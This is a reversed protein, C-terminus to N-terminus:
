EDVGFGTLHDVEIAMRLYRLLEERSSYKPLDLRNFCTHARPLLAPSDGPSREIPQLTFKALQGRNSELVRFGESPVRSTGTCFQLLRGREEDNFTNGVVDWFWQIIPDDECYGGSYQTNKKWDDVDVRNQGNLLLDLERDNFMRLLAVPIVSWFGQQLARLQAKVSTVMKHKAILYIYEEKNADTLREKEGGEKLPIVKTEGFFDETVSFATDLVGDVPHSRIWQLSRYLQSDFFALDQFGGGHQLLQKLLPRCFPAGIMQKDFLAKGLILGVFRFFELHNENVGSNSNIRYAIEDVDCIQFLGANPDLIKQSILTFFERTPGGADAGCEGQFQFKFEKHFDVPTLYRLRDFAMQLLRDRRVDVVIWAHAFHVRMSSLQAYFWDKKVSFPFNALAVFQDRNANWFKKYARRAAAEDSGTREGRTLEVLSDLLLDPNMPQSNASLQRRAAARRAPSPLDEASNARAAPTSPSPESPKSEARADRWMQLAGSRTEQARGASAAAGSLLGEEGAPERPEMPERPEIPEGPEADAREPGLSMNGAGSAPAVAARSGLVGGARGSPPSISWGPSRDRGRSEEGGRRPSRPSDGWSARDGSQRDGPDGEEGPSDGAEEGDPSPRGLRRRVSDLSERLRASPGPWLSDGTEWRASPSRQVTRLNDGGPRTPLPADDQDAGSLGSVAGAPDHVDSSFNERASVPTSSPATTPSTESLFLGHEAGERRRSLFAEGWPPALGTRAWRGEPLSRRARRGSDRQPGFASAYLSSDGLDTREPADLDRELLSEAPFSSFPAARPVHHSVASPFYRAPELEARARQLFLRRAPDAQVEMQGLQRALHRRRELVQHAPSPAPSGSSPARPPSATGPLNGAETGVARSFRIGSANPGLVGPPQLAGRERSQSPVSEREERSTRGVSLRPLEVLLQSASAPEFTIFGNRVRGFRNSWSASVGHLGEWHEPLLQVSLHQAVLCGDIHVLVQRTTVSAAFPNACVPCVIPETGSSAHSGLPGPTNTAPSAGGFRGTENRSASPGRAVDSAEGPPRPQMRRERRWRRNSGFGFFARLGRGTLQRSPASAGASRGIRGANQPVHPRGRWSRDARSLESIEVPEGEGPSASHTAPGAGSSAAARTRGRAIEAQLSPSLAHAVPTRRLLGAPFFGRAPFSVNDESDEAPESDPRDWHLPLSVSSPGRRGGRTAGRADERRPEATGHFTGHRSTRTSPVRGDASQQVARSAQPADQNRVSTQGTGEEPSCITDRGRLRLLARAGWPGRWRKQSFVPCCRNPEGM